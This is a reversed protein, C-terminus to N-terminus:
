EVVLKQTIEDILWINFKRTRKLLYQMEKLNFQLRRVIQTMIQSKENHWMRIRQQRAKGLQQQPQLRRGPWYGYCLIMMMVALLLLGVVMLWPKKLLSRPKLEKKIIIPPIVRHQDKRSTKVLNKKQRLLEISELASAQIERIRKRVTEALAKELTVKPVMFNKKCEVEAMVLLLCTTGANPTTSAQPSIVWKLNVGLKEAFPVSSIKIYSRVQHEDGTVSSGTVTPGMVTSSTCISLCQTETFLSNISPTKPILKWEVPYKIERQYTSDTIKKWSVRGGCMELGNAHNGFILSFLTSARCPMTGQFICLSFRDEDPRDLLPSSTMEVPSTTIVQSKLPIVESSISKPSRSVPSSIDGILTSPLSSVTQHKRGHFRWIKM